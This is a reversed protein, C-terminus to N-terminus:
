MHRDREDRAATDIKGKSAPRIPKSPSRPLLETSWATRTRRYKKERGDVGVEKGGRAIILEGSRSVSQSCQIREISHQSSGRRERRKVGISRAIGGNNM